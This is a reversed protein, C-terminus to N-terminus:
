IAKMTAKLWEAQTQPGALPAPEPAELVSPKARTTTKAKAVDNEGNGASISTIAQPKLPQPPQRTLEAWEAREAARRAAAIERRDASIRALGMWLRAYDRDARGCYHSVVKNGIRESRYYYPKRKRFKIGM